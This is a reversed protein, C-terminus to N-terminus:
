EPGYKAMIPFITESVHQNSREIWSADASIELPSCETPVPATEAVSQDAAPTNTCSQALFVATLALVSSRIRNTMIKGKNQDGWSYQFGRFFLHLM